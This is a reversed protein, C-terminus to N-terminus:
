PAKGQMSIKKFLSDYAGAIYESGFISLHHADMYLLRGETAVPCLSKGCLIQAPEIFQLPYKKALTEFILAATRNRQQYTELTPAIIQNIDRGTRLAISYASPADYGIEPIPTIIVVERGSEVLARITRELGREFLVSPADEANKEYGDVPQITEEEVAASDAGGQAWLSWRSALIVTKWQPQNQIAALIEENNKLCRQAYKARKIGLLPACGNTYLLRGGVQNQRASLSVGNALSPALSDGWLVFSDEASSDGLPCGSLRCPVTAVRTEANMDLTEGKDRQPFGANWGIMAGSLAALGMVSAAYLFLRKRNSFKMTRFPTEVFKWSLAALLIAVLMLAIKQFDSLPQIAYYKGFTFLGWHWLYLSYSIKGIFVMPATGLWRHIFSGGNTGTLIILAAGFVPATAALGPFPTAATYLFVAAGILGLGAFGGAQRLFQSLRIKEAHLAILCGTLLEWVRFQVLYFASSAEGYYVTYASYGLSLLALGALIYSASRKAYRTLFIMMLPYFIYFQEEVALSWTHLLPKLQAPGEFYGTEGWFHINSFFFTAAILSKGFNSFDKANYLFAAALGTFFLTVFLAPYIRRIRREYFRALSFEGASVERQIIGTILFGSIVFFVDVGTYGGSFAAIGAHNFLVSLVAVARLGDIDPRYTFEMLSTRRSLYKVRLQNYQIALVKGYKGSIKLNLIHTM